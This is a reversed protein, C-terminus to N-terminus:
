DPDEVPDASRCTPASGEQPNLIREKIELIHVRMSEEAGDPDRDQIFKLIDTHYPVLMSNTEVDSKGLEIASIMASFLMNSTSTMLDNGTGRLVARHFQADFIIFNDAEAVGNVMRNTAQAIEEHQEETGYRASWNAAMPEIMFRFEVLQRIFTPEPDAYFHWNLVEADILPWTERRTVYNRGNSRLEILGKEIVAAVAQDVIPREVGFKEAISAEDNFVERERYHGGAVKRGIERRVDSTTDAELSSDENLDSFM